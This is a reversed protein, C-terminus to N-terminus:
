KNIITIKPKEKNMKIAMEAADLTPYIGTKVGDINEYTMTLRGM